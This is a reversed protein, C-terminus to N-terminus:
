LVGKNRNIKLRRFGFYLFSLEMMLLIEVIFLPSTKRYESNRQWVGALVIVVAVAITVGLASAMDFVGDRIV